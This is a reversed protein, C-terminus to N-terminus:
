QLNGPHVGTVGNVCTDCQQAPGRDPHTLAHRAEIKAYVALMVAPTGTTVETDLRDLVRALATVTRPLTIARTADLGLTDTLRRAPEV